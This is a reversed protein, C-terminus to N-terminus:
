EAGAVLDTRVVERRFDSPALSRGREGAPTELLHLALVDDRGQLLHASVARLGRCQEPDIRLREVPFDERVVDRDLREPGSPSPRPTTRDGPTFQGTIRWPQRERRRYKARGLIPACGEASSHGFSFTWPM